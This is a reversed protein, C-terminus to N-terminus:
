VDEVDEMDPLSSDWGCVGCKGDGRVPGHGRPCRPWGVGEVPSLSVEVELRAAKYEVSLPEFGDIEAGAEHMLDRLRNYSQTDLNELERRGMKERLDLDFLEIVEQAEDGGSPLDVTARPGYTSM